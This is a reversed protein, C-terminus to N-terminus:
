EPPYLNHIRKEKVAENVKIVSELLPLRKGLNERAWTLFGLTDKPLCTGGFPGFNKIGYEKNWSAEASLIVAGFIKDADIGKVESVMRMENFFSIKNANWLNHVYKMMEAEKLSLHIKPCDISEYLEDMIQESKRDLCGMVVVWPNKFDKEASKERLFEPNMCVGFDKGAKKGSFRELAPIFQDELTGPPVTSRMTMVSYDRKNKIAKGVSAVASFLFRLDVKEDITPTFVSLLFMEYEKGDLNEMHCTKLGSKELKELVLPNIDCFTIDHGLSLLGRGTAQGVVGSGIIAIKKSKKNEM